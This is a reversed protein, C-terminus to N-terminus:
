KTTGLAIATCVWAGTPIKSTSSVCPPPTQRTAWTQEGAETSGIVEEEEEEDEEAM